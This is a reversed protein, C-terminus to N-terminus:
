AESYSWSEITVNGAVSAVLIYKKDATALKSAPSSRPCITIQGNAPLYHPGHMVTGSTEEQLQVNMATDTSIVFEVMARKQGATPADTAAVGAGTANASNVVKHDAVWNSGADKTPITRQPPGALLAERALLLTITRAAGETTPTAATGSRVKLAALGLFESQDLYVMRDAAVTVKKENGFADYLNHFNTGDASVQFTLITGTLAAPLIVAYPALGGLAVAGSLSEGSAITAEKQYHGEM